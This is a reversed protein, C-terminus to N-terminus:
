GPYRGLKEHALLRKAGSVSSFFNGTQSASHRRWALTVPAVIQVFGSLNGLQLILDHDEANLRDELFRVGILAARLWVCLGSGVIYPYRSSAIYDKFWSTEYAHERIKNLEMEEFFEVYTGNLIHPWGYKRIGHAFVDLTWPLWLDDSDLLAIYDGRAQGMGINRAAGPGRNAQRVYRVKSDLRQLYPQTGDNSGDDVVIVHYDAFRQRWVSELPRALLEARNYTPIIVSFHM